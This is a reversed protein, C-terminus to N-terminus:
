PRGEPPLRGILSLKASRVLTTGSDHYALAQQVLARTPCAILYGNAFVYNVEVGFDKSRLSYFTRDGSQARDWELGNKGEKAAQANIETVVREFTQQLHVPDNVEFILKWSPTPLIPGDIAFAYEGGLPTAFDKRLDLGHDTQLQNLHKNLDPCVTNLVGLLDDVLATPNKM